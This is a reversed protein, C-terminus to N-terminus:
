GRRSTYLLCAHAHHHQVPIAPIDLSQAFRTSYFDPHLDHAVRSPRVNLEALLKEVSDEFAAISEPTGLDGHIRSLYATDDRTVCITNKLFAGVALTSPVARPLPITQAIATM